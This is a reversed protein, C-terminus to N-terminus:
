ARGEEAQLTGCAFDAIRAYVEENLPRLLYINDGGSPGDKVGETPSSYALTPLGTVAVKPGLPIFVNSSGLGMWFDPNKAEAALFAQEEASASTVNGPIREYKVDWGKKKLDAIAIQAANEPFPVATTAEGPVQFSSVVSITKDSGSGSSQAGASTNVAAAAVASALCAIAIFRLKRM